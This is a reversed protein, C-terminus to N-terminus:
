WILVQLDENPGDLLRRLLPLSRPTGQVLAAEAIARIKTDKTTLRDTWDSLSAASLSFDARAQGPQAPSPTVQALVRTQLICVLTLVSLYRVTM